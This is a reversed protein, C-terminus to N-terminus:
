VTNKKLWTELLAEHKPAIVAFKIGMGERPLVYVVEASTNFEEGEYTIKLSIKTGAPVSTPTRVFCGLRSIEATRAVICVRPSVAAIEAVGGFPHRPARRREARTFEEPKSLSSAIRM